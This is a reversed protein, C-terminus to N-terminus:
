LKYPFLTSREFDQGNESPNRGLREKKTLYITVDSCTVEAGCVPCRSHCTDGEYVLGCRDCEVTANAMGKEIIEDKWM